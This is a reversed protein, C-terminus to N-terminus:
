TALARLRAGATQPVVSRGVGHVDGMEGTGQRMTHALRVMEGGVYGTVFLLCWKMDNAYMKEIFEPANRKVSWVFRVRM